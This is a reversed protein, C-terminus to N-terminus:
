KEPNDYDGDMVDNGAADICPSDSSLHFDGAGTFLPNDYINWLGTGTWGGEIDCSNVNFLTNGSM